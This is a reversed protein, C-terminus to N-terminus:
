LYSNPEDINEIEKYNETSGIHYDENPFLIEWIWLFFNRAEDPHDFAILCSDYIKGFNIKNTTLFFSLSRKISIKYAETKKEFYPKIKEFIIQKIEVENNSDVDQYIYVMEDIDASGGLPNLIDNLMYWNVTQM